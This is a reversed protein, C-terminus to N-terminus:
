FLTSKTSSLIVVTKKKLLTGQAPKCQLWAMHEVWSIPKILVNLLVDAKPSKHAIYALTFTCQRCTKVFLSMPLPPNLHFSFCERPAERSCPVLQNWGQWPPSPRKLQAEANWTNSKLQCNWSCYLMESVKAQLTSENWRWIIYNGRRGLRSPLWSLLPTQEGHLESEWCSAQHLTEQLINENLFWFVM